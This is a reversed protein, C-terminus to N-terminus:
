DCRFISSLFFLCTIFFLCQLVNFNHHSQNQTKKNILHSRGDRSFCTGPKLRPSFQRSARPPPQLQETSGKQVPHIQSASHCVTVKEEAKLLCGLLVAEFAALLSLRPSALLEQHQFLSRTQSLLCVPLWAQPPLRYFCPNCSTQQAPRSSTFFLIPAPPCPARLLIQLLNWAQLLSMANSFLAGLHEKRSEERGKGNEQSWWRFVSDGMLQHSTQNLPM